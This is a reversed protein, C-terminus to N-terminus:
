QEGEGEAKALVRRAPQTTFSDIKYESIISDNVVDVLEKLVEVMERNLEKIRTNEAKLEDITEWLGSVGTRVKYAEQEKILDPERDWQERGIDWSM